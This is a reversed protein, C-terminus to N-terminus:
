FNGTVISPLYFHLTRSDYANFDAGGWLLSTVNRIFVQTPVPSNLVTQGRTERHSRTGRTGRYTGKLRM